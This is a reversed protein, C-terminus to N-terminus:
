ASRTSARLATPSACYATEGALNATKLKHDAPDQRAGYNEGLAIHRVASVCDAQPEYDAARDVSQARLRALVGQSGWCLVRPPM